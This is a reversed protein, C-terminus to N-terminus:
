SCPAGPTTSRESTSPVLITMWAALAARRTYTLESTTSSVLEVGSEFSM